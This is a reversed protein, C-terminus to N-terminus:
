SGGVLCFAFARGSLRGLRALGRVTSQSLRKKGHRDCKMHSAGRSGGAGELTPTPFMCLVILAEMVDMFHLHCSAQCRMRQKGPGHQFRRKLARRDQTGYVLDCM